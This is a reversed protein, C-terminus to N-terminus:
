SDLDLGEGLKTGRIKEWISFFVGAIAEKKKNSHLTSNTGPLYAEHWKKISTNMLGEIESKKVKAM